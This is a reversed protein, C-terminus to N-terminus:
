DGGIEWTEITLETAKQPHLPPSEKEAGPVEEPPACSVVFLLFVTMILTTFSKKM